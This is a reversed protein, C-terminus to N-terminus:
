PRRRASPRSAPSTRATREARSPSPSLGVSRAILKELVDSVFSRLEDAGACPPILATVAARRERLILAAEWASSVARFASPRDHAGDQGVPKGLVAPDGFVDAADDALQYFRGLGIGLQAFPEEPAGAAIAGLRTAAEFLAATKALHYREVSEDEGGLELAQGTVLGGRAGAARALTVVASAPAGVSGLLDFAAVILADGVLVATAEGYSRHISPRGRRMAADDFCPLDDHVLSACHILEVACASAEALDPRAESVARAVALCLGPRVRAGGPFVADQMAARLSAPQARNVAARLTSELTAM